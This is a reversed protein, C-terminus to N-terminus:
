NVQFALNQGRWIWIGSITSDNDSGFLCVSAICQKRMKDLRQFMGATCCFNNFMIWSTVNPSLKGTILNCSMFVKTLENSYKYEGFWISYNEKDFKEWFYPISKSEENNSYFRKFDDMNFTGKPMEDFPDKSKPEEMLAEDAADLEEPKEEQKPKPKPKEEKKKEEKGTKKDEKKLSGGVKGIYSPILHALHTMKYLNVKFNLLSKRILKVNKKVFRLNGLQLKSNLNILALLLGDTLIKTHSGIVKM